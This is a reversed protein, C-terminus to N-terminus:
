RRVLGRIWAAARTCFDACDEGFYDIRDAFRFVAMRREFARRTKSSSREPRKPPNIIRQVEAEAAPDGANFGDWLQSAKKDVQRTAFSFRTEPYKWHSVSGKVHCFTCECEPEHKTPGSTQIRDAQAM